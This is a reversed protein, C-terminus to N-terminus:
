GPRRLFPVMRWLVPHGDFQHKLAGGVHLFLVALYTWVIWDTHLHSLGRSFPRDHVPVGPLPPISLGWLSLPEARSSMMAWGVLPQVLLLVYLVVHVVSALRREWRAMGSVLPPPRHLARWAIRTAVVILLTLGFSVHWWQIADQQPSHDPVFHNMWWGLALLTVVLAATVWHLAMAVGSYRAGATDPTEAAM